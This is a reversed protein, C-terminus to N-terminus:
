REVVLYLWWTEYGSLEHIEIRRGTEEGDDDLEEDFCRLNRFGAEIAIDRLEAITWMRWDYTYAPSIASGDPFAFHIHCRIESNLPNYAEWQWRWDYGDEEHEDEDPDQVGPGGWIDLFFLGDDRLSAHVRKFYKLLTARSKFIWYSFNFAVAVDVPAECVSETVDGAICRLRDREQKPRAAMKEQCWDLADNDLDIAFAKRDRGGAVWTRSFAATGSFDERLTQAPRKRLKAFTSAVFEVEDNPRQVSKEYLDRSDALAAMTAKGRTSAGSPPAKGKKASKKAVDCRYAVVLRDTL